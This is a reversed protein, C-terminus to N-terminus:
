WGGWQASVVIALTVIVVLFGVGIAAGLAWRAADHWWPERKKRTMDELEIRPGVGNRSSQAYKWQSDRMGVGNRM